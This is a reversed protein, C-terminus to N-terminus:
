QVERWQGGLHLARGMEEDVLDLAVPAGVDAGGDVRATPQSLVVPLEGAARRTRAASLPAKDGDHVAESRPDLRELELPGEPAGEATTLRARRTAVRQM